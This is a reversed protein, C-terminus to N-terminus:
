YNCHVEIAIGTQIPLLWSCESSLFTPSSNFILSILGLISNLTWVGSGFPGFLPDPRVVSIASTSASQHQIRSLTWLEFQHRRIPLTLLRSAPIRAVCFIQFRSRRKQLTERYRGHIYSLQHILHYSLRDAYPYQHYATEAGEPKLNRIYQSCDPFDFTHHYSSADTEFDSSWTKYWGM